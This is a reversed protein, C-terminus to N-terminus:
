KIKIEKQEIEKKKQLIFFKSMYMFKKFSKKCNKFFRNSHEKRLLFKKKYKWKRALFFDKRKKKRLFRSIMKKSKYIFRRMKYKFRRIFFDLLIKNCNRFIFFFMPRLKIFEILKLYWGNIKRM